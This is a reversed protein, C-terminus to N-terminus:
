LRIHRRCGNVCVTGSSGYGIPGDPRTRLRTVRQLGCRIQSQSRLLAGELHGHVPQQLSARFTRIVNLRRAAVQSHPLEVVDLSACVRPDYGAVILWRSLGPTARADAQWRIQFPTGATAARAQRSFTRRTHTSPLLVFMQLAHPEPNVGVNILHHLPVAREAQEAPQYARRLSNARLVYVVHLRQFLTEDVFRLLEEAASSASGNHAPGDNPPSHTGGIANACSCPITDSSSALSM